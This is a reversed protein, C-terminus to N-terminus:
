PRSSSNKESGASVLARQTAGPDNPTDTFSEVVIVNGNKALEPAVSKVKADGSAVKEIRSFIEQLKPSRGVIGHFAPLTREFTQSSAPPAPPPCLVLRRIEELLNASSPRVVCEAQRLEALYRVGPDALDEVLAVVRGRYGSRQIRAAVEYGTTEGTVNIVLLDPLGNADFVLSLEQLSGAFVTKAGIPQLVQHVARAVLLTEDAVTVLM